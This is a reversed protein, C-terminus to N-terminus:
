AHSRFRQLAVQVPQEEGSEFAPGKVAIGDDVTKTMAARTM